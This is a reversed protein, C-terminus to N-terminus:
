DVVSGTTQDGSAAICRWRDVYAQRRRAVQLRSRQVPDPMLEFRFTLTTQLTFLCRGGKERFSGPCPAPAVVLRGGSPTLPPLPVPLGAHVSRLCVLQRFVYGDAPLTTM